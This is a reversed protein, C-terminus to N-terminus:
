ELLMIWNVDDIKVILSKGQNGVVDIVNKLVVIEEDFEELTGTFSHDGGVALAVKKGKWNELIKELLPPTGESM